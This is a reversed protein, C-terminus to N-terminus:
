EHLVTQGGVTQTNAIVNSIPRNYVLYAGIAFSTFATVTLLLLLVAFVLALYHHVKHQLYGPNQLLCAGVRELEESIRRM